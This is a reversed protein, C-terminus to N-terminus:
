SNRGICHQFFPVCHSPHWKYNLHDRPPLMEPHDLIQANLKLITLNAGFHAKPVLIQPCPEAPIDQGWTSRNRTRSPTRHQAGEKPAPPYKLAPISPSGQEDM